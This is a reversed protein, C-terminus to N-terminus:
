KKIANKKRVDNWGMGCAFVGCCAALAALAAVLYFVHDISDAYAKLVANLDSPQVLSRYGTAGANIIAQANVDPARQALQKKLTAEFIVNYLSLAIAPTLSQGFVMFAMGSSLEAGTTVAQIANVAVQLGAGSGIGGIIQFGVWEGTSSGPQLLSYLGSATSLLVTCFFALPMVYGIKSIIFGSSAATVLQPLITPLLYVGSLMPGANNIAQFYVPLFYIGGYNASMLLGQYVGSTWVATRGVMAPPLLAGNGKRWNWLFWVVFTAASGCFLGIVRSSNWLFQNGGYQLALLLQLVAPAFLVFGILDLKHHLQRLVTMAPPKVTQQPIRLLIIAVAAVAGVPLNIYFCWRWNSYSTIAGGILPGAVLGLQNFGMTMGLLAPRREKAVCSSIITLAGIIIGAAGFGAVARGVIFMSSSAAAGCLLSGLEFISFFTLYTWKTNFHTYIKGTLLQPAASGFMYASAYWGIDPLSHFRDTIRPIATSVILNDLLMLFCSLAVSAVVVALKLGTLYEVGDDQPNKEIPNSQIDETPPQVDPSIAKTDDENLSLKSPPESDVM